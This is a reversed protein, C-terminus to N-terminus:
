NEGVTHTCIYEIQVDLGLPTLHCGDTSYEEKLYGAENSLVEATNLYFSNTQKAVEIIWKNGEKIKSNSISTYSRCVPFMSQLIIKTTPSARKISEILKTYESIFYEKKVLEVGNIGLSIILVPPADLSVAEAVTIEKQSEPHFIKQFQVDWISMTGNKPTWVQKTNEGGELMAFSKLGYTRSDGLFIVKKLYDAGGHATEELLVNSPMVNKYNVEYSFVQVENKSRLHKKQYPFVAICILFFCATLTIKSIRM